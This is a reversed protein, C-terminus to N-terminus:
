KVGEIEIKKRYNMYDVYLKETDSHGLQAISEPKSILGPYQYIFIEEVYPSMAELQKQLREFPAPLLASQYVQGEFRFAEANGFLVSRGAKDHAKKLAEYYAATDDYSSKQVGVEDQYACIDVDLRSLDSIYKDDAVLDKTGYPSILSKFRKGLKHMEASSYNVYKIFSEDMYKNIWTEDPYYWGYFSSHHGYLETLENMAVCTRRLIEANSMIDRPHTMNRGTERWNGYFGNSLFINLGVKDAEDLVVEIPDNCALEWREEFVSSKFYTKGNLTTCLLIAYKMGFEKMERIKARWQEETFNQLTNDWYVGERANHHRFEFWTGTIPKTYKLEM